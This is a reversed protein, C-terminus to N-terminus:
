GPPSIRRIAAHLAVSIPDGRNEADPAELSRLGSIARYLHARCAESIGTVRDLCELATPVSRRAAEALGRAETAEDRLVRETPIASDSLVAATQTLALMDPSLDAAYRDIETLLWRMRRIWGGAGDWPPGWSSCADVLLEPGVSRLHSVCSERLSRDPMQTLRGVLDDLGTLRSVATHNCAHPVLSGGWSVGVWGRTRVIQPHTPTADAIRTATTYGDVGGQEMSLRAREHLRDPPDAVYARGTRNLLIVGGDSLATDPRLIVRVLGASTVASGPTLNLMQAIKM